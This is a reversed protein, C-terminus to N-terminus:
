FVLTVVISDTYLGVPVNQGAFTRGFLPYNRTVRRTLLRVADSVTVTGASSDGWVVNRAPTTYINYNLVAGSALRMRRAAFSGSGGASVAISYALSEGPIGECTVAINGTTDSHGLALPNYSGFGLTVASVSCTAAWSAGTALAFVAAAALSVAISRM